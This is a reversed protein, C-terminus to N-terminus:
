ARVSIGEIDLQETINNVEAKLEAEAADIEALRKERDKLPPGCDADSLWDARCSELCEGLFAKLQSALAAMLFENGVGTASSFQAENDSVFLASRAMVKRSPWLGSPSTSTKKDQISGAWRRRISENAADVDAEVSRVIGAKWDDFRVPATELYERESELAALEMRKARLDSVISKSDGLFRQLISAM